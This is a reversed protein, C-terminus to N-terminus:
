LYVSSLDGYVPRQCFSQATTHNRMIVHQARAFLMEPTNHLTVLKRDIIICGFMGSSCTADISVMMMKKEKEKTGQVEVPTLLLLKQQNPVTFHLTFAPM